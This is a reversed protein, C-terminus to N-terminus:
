GAILVINVTGVTLVVLFRNFIAEANLSSLGKNSLTQTDIFRGGVTLSPVHSPEQMLVLQILVLIDVSNWM